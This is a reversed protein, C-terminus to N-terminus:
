RLSLRQSLKVNDGFIRKTAQRSSRYSCMLGHMQEGPARWLRPFSDKDNLQIQMQNCGRRRQEFLHLLGRSMVLLGLPHGPDHKRQLWDRTHMNNSHM